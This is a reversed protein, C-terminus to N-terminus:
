ASVVEIGGIWPYLAEVQRKKARFSETERGKVDVVSMRGDAHFVLFDCVYRVNGPLRFPVQMLFGVVEGAREQAKLVDYYRAEAASDFTYGDRETKVNGYKSRSFSHRWM